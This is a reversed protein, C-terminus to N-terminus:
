SIEQTEIADSCSALPSRFIRFVDLTSPELDMPEYDPYFHQYDEAYIEEIRSRLKREQRPSLKMPASVPGNARTLVLTRGLRLSLARVLQDLQEYRFVHVEKSGRLFSSQSRLHLLDHSEALEVYQELRLSYLDIGHHWRAFDAMARDKRRYSSLFRTWPDRVVTFVWSERVFRPHLREIEALQLHQLFESSLGLSMLSPSSIKGFCVFTNEIASDLNLGLALELSTGATKPIHIFTM